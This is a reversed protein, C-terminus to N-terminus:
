FFVIFNCNLAAFPSQFTCFVISYVIYLTNLFGFVFQFFHLLVDKNNGLCFYYCPCGPYMYITFKNRFVLISCYNYKNREELSSRFIEKINTITEGKRLKSRFFLMLFNSLTYRVSHRFLIYFLGSYKTLYFM